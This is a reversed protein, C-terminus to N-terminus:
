GLLKSALCDCGVLPVRTASAPARHGSAVYRWELRGGDVELLGFGEPNGLFPGRWWRGCVAGSTIFQTNRYLVREPLHSHGQLVARVDYNWLLDLVEAANPIRFKPGDVVHLSSPFLPLVSSLLPVHTAVIIPVGRGVRALDDRLWALQEDDIRADWDRGVVRASDLIVFHWGRHDFAYYRRGFLREFLRNGFAASRPDVGSKAYVGVNDHNGVVNHVPARLTAMAARYQAFLAEAEAESAGLADYVLDGGAISFAVDLADIKAFAKAVGDPAGMDPRIHVDSFHAFRFASGSRPAAAGLAPAAGLAALFSSRDIM